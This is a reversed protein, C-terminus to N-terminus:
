PSSGDPWLEFTVTTKAPAKMVLTDWKDAEVNFAMIEDSDLSTAVADLVLIDWKEVGEIRYKHGDVWMVLIM